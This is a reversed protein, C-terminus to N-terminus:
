NTCTGSCCDFGRACAGGAPNCAKTGTVGGDAATTTGGCVNGTCANVCCQSAATCGAGISGCSSTRGSDGFAPGGDGGSPPATGDDGTGADDFTVANDSGCNLSGVSAILVLPLALVAGLWAPKIRM